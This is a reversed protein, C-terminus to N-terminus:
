KTQSFEFGAHFGTFDMLKRSGHFLQCHVRADVSERIIRGMQGQVPARLPLSNEELLRLELRYKGQTIMAGESSLGQVSAGRYTALRLEKGNCMIACICGTFSLRGLPITAVSLMLSCDPGDCQCWLYASPFSRGRDGEIYGTGSDFDWAEGNLRLQGTLTHHMSFVSHACEMGPIWRFPGMIDSGLPLFPGFSIHGTLQLDERHINLILGSESFRNEAIKINLSEAQTSFDGAPYELFWTRERTILQISASAEGGPRIHLAPILALVQGDKARCLFYWGEFYPGRKGSGHFYRKMQDGM